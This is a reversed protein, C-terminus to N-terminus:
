TAPVTQKAFVERCKRALTNLHILLKRMCAVMATFHAKGAARLHQYHDRIVPNRQTASLTPMFLAARLNGRGGQIRRRGKRPGSDDNFPALGALAAIQRRTARGIQPLETLLMRSTTAGVGDVERLTADIAKALPDADISQEILGEVEAVQKDLLDIVRQIQKRLKADGAHELHNREMTRMQILQRRRTILRDRKRQNEDPIEASEDGLQGAYRALVVADIRDTKALVGLSKAYDRVRKPNVVRVDFRAERLADVVRWEYGGTAEIVVRRVGLKKFHAVLQACGPADNAAHLAAGSREPWVDADLGAKSVDVGADVRPAPVSASASGSAPDPVQPHIM